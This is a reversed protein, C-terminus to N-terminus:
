SVTQKREKTVPFAYEKELEGFATNLRLLHKNSEELSHLLKQKYILTTNGM